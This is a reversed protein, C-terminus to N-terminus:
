EVIMWTLDTDNFQLFVPVADCTRLMAICDTDTWGNREIIDLLVSVFSEAVARFQMASSETLSKWKEHTVKGLTLHLCIVNADADYTCVVPTDETGMLSVFEDCFAQISAPEITQPEALAAGCLLLMALLLPLIRRM